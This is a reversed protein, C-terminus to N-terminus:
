SADRRSRFPQNDAAWREVAQARGAQSRSYGHVGIRSSDVAGDTEAAFQRLADRATSLRLASKTSDLGAAEEVSFRRKWKRVRRELNRQMQSIEYRTYLKGQYEIERADLKALREPTYLPESIGEFFPHMQHRCNWGCLGPGTGYGTVAVLSPYRPHRGSRSFVQGQWAAHEPRAGAHATTEVLDCDLEDMRAIQLKAATQNVGTLLARRVAVELTDVHGTDYAVAELGRAAIEAVARRTATQYDFAGSSVQLWARDLTRGLQATATDATTATINALSGNTQKAGSTLLNLLDPSDNPAAPSLGAARYVADDSALTQTGAATLMARVEAESRGLTQALRRVVDRRFLRMAELRRAQWGATETLLGTKAIRRAMDCLIDEEVQQWLALASAPLKDLQEASLM